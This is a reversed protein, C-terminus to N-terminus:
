CINEWFVILVWHQTNQSFFLCPLWEWLSGNLHEKVFCSVQLAKLHVRLVLLGEKAIERVPFVFM